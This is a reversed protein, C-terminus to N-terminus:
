LIAKRASHQETPQSASAKGAAAIQQAFPTTDDLERASYQAMGTRQEADGKSFGEL